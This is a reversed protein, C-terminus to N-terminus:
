INEATGIWHIDVTVMQIKSSGEGLSASSINRKRITSVLVGQVAVKFAEGCLNWSCRVPFTTLPLRSLPIRLFINKTSNAPVEAPSTVIEPPLTIERRPELSLCTTYFKHERTTRFTLQLSIHFPVKTSLWDLGWPPWDLEQLTHFLSRVGLSISTQMQTGCIGFNASHWIRNRDDNCLMAIENKVFLPVSDLWGLWGSFHFLDGTLAVFVVCVVIILDFVAYLTHVAYFVNDPGISDQFNYMLLFVISELHIYFVIVLYFKTM